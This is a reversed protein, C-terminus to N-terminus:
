DKQDKEKEYWYERATWGIGFVAWVLISTYWFIDSDELEELCLLPLSQYEFFDKYCGHIFVSGLLAVVVSFGIKKLNDVGWHLNPYKSVMLHKFVVASLILILIGVVVITIIMTKGDM